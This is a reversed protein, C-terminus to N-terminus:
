PDLQFYSQYFIIKNYTNTITKFVGNMICLHFFKSSIEFVLSAIHNWLMSNLPRRQPCRYLFVAALQVARINVMSSEIAITRTQNLYKTRQGFSKKM